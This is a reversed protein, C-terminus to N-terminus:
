FKIGFDLTYGYKDELRIGSVGFMFKQKLDVGFQVKNTKFDVSSGLMGYFQLVPVKYVVEERIKTRYIPRITSSAGVLRNEYVEANVLFTGTTDSSFDLKYKRRVFYDALIAATDTKAPTGPMWVTDGKVEYPVPNDITDRVIYPAPEYKISEKVIPEPIEIFARSILFGVFFAVVSCIITAKSIKIENSM